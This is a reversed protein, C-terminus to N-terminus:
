VKLALLLVTRPLGSCNTVRSINSGGMECILLDFCLSLFYSQGLGIVASALIQVKALHGWYTRRVVM